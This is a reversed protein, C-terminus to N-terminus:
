KSHLHPTKVEKLQNGGRTGRNVMKSVTQGGPRRESVNDQHKLEAELDEM